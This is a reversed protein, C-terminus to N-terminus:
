RVAWAQGSWTWTDGLSAQGGDGGFLLVNHRAADFTMLALARPSPGGSTEVRSWTGSRRRWLEDIQRTTVDIGGFLLMEGAGGDFVMTAGFRPSPGTGTVPTWEFGDWEWTDDLKQEALNLGGFLVTVRRQPDYAMAPFLRASPGQSSAQTWSQGDYEWTERAAEGPGAGGGFRVLRGRASDYAYAALARVPTSAATVQVWQTDVLRRVRGTPSVSFVDQATAFIETGIERGGTTAALRTWATGNWSWLDDHEVNANDVGGFLVVRQRAADYAIGSHRRASPSSPAPGPDPDTPGGPTTKDCAAIAAGLTLLCVLLPALLFPRHESM